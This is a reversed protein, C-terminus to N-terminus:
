RVRDSVTGRYTTTEGPVVMADIVLPHYGSEVVVIQHSGAVLELHKYYGRFDDVRGAYVGDVFVAARWPQVDLQVGGTPGEELTFSASEPAYYFPM